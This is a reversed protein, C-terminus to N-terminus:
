EIESILKKIKPMFKQNLIFINPSLPFTKKPIKRSILARSRLHITAMNVSNISLKTLDAIKRTNAIGGNSLMAKLIRKQVDKEIMKKYPFSTFM